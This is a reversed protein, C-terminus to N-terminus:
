GPSSKGIRWYGTFTVDAKAVGRDSTLHRRLGSAMKQEGAVFADVQQSPLDAARVAALALSGVEAGPDERVLWHVNMGEPEGLEQADGADAVELYASGRLGRPASSLVGAIAPLASEDGVLLSWADPRSPRYTIGEDLLGVPSGVLATSAWACAPTRDGHMAVDIDVEATDGFHGAGAPRHSRVTYNRVIPRHEKGMRLWQAYWLSNGASPLRLEGNRPLFLRFWQDFGAPAFAALDAGGVSVRVFHPSIQKTALVEGTVIRREKPKIYKSAM